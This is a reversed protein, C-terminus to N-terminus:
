HLEKVQGPALQPSIYSINDADVRGQLDIYHKFDQVAVPAVSVLKIKSATANSTDLRSIEEELKKISAENNVREAKLKELAAKKDVVSEDRDKRSNGCSFLFIAMATIVFYQKM